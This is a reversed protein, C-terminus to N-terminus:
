SLPLSQQYFCQVKDHMNCRTFHNFSISAPTKISSLHFKFDLITLTFMVKRSYVFDLKLNKASQHNRILLRNYVNNPCSINWTLILLTLINVLLYNVLSLDLAIFYVKSACFPFILTVKSFTLWPWFKAFM